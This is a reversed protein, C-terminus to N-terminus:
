DMNTPMSHSSCPTLLADEWKDQSDLCSANGAALTPVQRILFPENLMKTTPRFLKQKRCTNQHGPLLKYLLIVVCCSSACLTLEREAAPLCRENTTCELKTTWDTTSMLSRWTFQFKEEQGNHQGRAQCVCHWTHQSISITHNMNYPAPVTLSCFIHSLSRLTFVNESWLLEKM